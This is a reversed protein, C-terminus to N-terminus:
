KYIVGPALPLKINFEELLPPKDKFVDFLGPNIYKATGSHTKPFENLVSELNQKAKDKPDM